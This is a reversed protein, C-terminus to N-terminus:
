FTQQISFRDEDRLKRSRTQLYKLVIAAINGGEERRGSEVMIRDLEWLDEEEEVVVVV